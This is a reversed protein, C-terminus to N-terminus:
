SAWTWSDLVAEAIEQQDDESTDLGYSFTITYQSGGRLLFYQRAIYTKGQFTATSSVVAAETDDVDFRDLSEVDVFSTSGELETLAAEEMEDVDFGPSPRKGVNVNNAIDGSRETDSFALEVEPVQDSTDVWGAPLAFTFDDNGVRDLEESERTDAGRDQTPASRESGSGDSGCGVLLVALLAIPLVLLRRSTM